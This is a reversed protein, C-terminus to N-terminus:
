LTLPLFSDSDIWIKGDTGIHRVQMRIKDAHGVVMVKTMDDRGPHTDVVLGAHGKFQHIKWSAPIFKELMPKLVGLTM